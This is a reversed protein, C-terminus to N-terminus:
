IELDELRDIHGDDPDYTTELWAGWEAHLDFQVDPIPLEVDMDPTDTSM